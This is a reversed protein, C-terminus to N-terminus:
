GCWGPRPGGDYPKALGSRLLLASLDDGDPLVVRAVVRGAFKGYAIENLTVGDGEVSRVVLARAREAGAKEAECAGRLEPADVGALRVRIRLRQGIWIQAVVEITDGDLVAVVEVPVPGPLTEDAAARSLSHSALPVLLLAVALRRLGAVVSWRGGTASPRDMVAPARFGGM